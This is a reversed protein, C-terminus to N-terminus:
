RVCVWHAVTGSTTAAAQADPVVPTNAKAQDLPRIITHCRYGTDHSAEGAWELAEGMIGGTTDTKRLVCTWRSSSM